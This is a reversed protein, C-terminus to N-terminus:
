IPVVLMLRSKARELNQFSGGWEMYYGTPLEMQAEVAKQAEEVFSAADRGRVNIMVAARKKSSERRIDSYTQQIKLDAVEKLPVTLNESVGVPLRGLLDLDSREKEGLRVIIPFRMVG